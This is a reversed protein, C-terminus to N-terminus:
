SAVVPPKELPRDPAPPQAGSRRVIEFGAHALMEPVERVPQRDKDRESEPLQEWDVILPHIKHADDRVPGYRWGTRLKDNCWREHELRALSEVEEPTFSELPGEPDILAAPVLICEAAELQAGIGDAFARNTEKWEEDLQEWAVMLGDGMPRGHELEHRVYEEHKARALLENTGRVLPEVALARGLVGFGYVGEATEPDDHLVTALGAGADDVAVAFPVGQLERRARLALAVELAKAENEICVYIATVAHDPETDIALAGRQLEIGLPTTVGRVDCIRELEPYRALLRTTEGVADGCLITLRLDEGAAPRSNQWLRAINVVLADGIGGMGALVVHPRRSSPTLEFPPREDLLIRAGTYFANFFEVRMSEHSLQGIAEAKLMRWLGSEELHVLAHLAGQRRGEALPGAAVAVEVNRGDDGCVAILYRARDVRAKALVRHDSADGILVKIGREHCGRISGNAEDIDIVVVAFGHTRFDSALRFGMGGLGAIVVHNRTLLRIGALQVQQRFVALLGRFIAYGVLLPALFRAVEMTWPIPPEVDVGDLEFLTLTRYFSDILVAKRGHDTQYQQFGITGLVFVAIAVLALVIPRADIWVPRLREYWVIKFSRWRSPPLASEGTSEPMPGKESVSTMGSVM